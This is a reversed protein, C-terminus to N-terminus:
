DNGEESATDDDKQEDDKKKGKVTNLFRDLKKMDSYELGTVRKRNRPKNLKVKGIKEAMDPSIRLLPVRLNYVKNGQYLMVCEGKDLSKLQDPTVRHKEEEREAYGIGSSDGLNANPSARLAQTSESKSDSISITKSIAVHKGIMDAAAEATAQSGVRFILKTTTNGTVRESFDDSIQKLNSETQVAPLLFLGASRAQEFIVAWEENVYSGAEDFFAMFPIKPRDQKNAQLWSIATRFDGLIMKGFNSAAIAKGMTPLAAYCIKGSKLIDYMKVDPTYTNLVEGFQNTGFTFLRGGIGGFTEKLRKLDIEGAMPNRTDNAPLRYQDLFLRLNRTEDAKPKDKVLKRLLDELAKANNLLVSLDYFNYAYGARKCAAVLTVVGQNAAQKFYDQGANTSTSPILGILRAAVEDADGDAIPNYTNSLQPDGPNLVYFDKERGCAVAFQYISLINDGDLKGDVFLLGGNRQIQQFMLLSAAVTKGTGSMGAIFVHRFLDDDRLFIPEGTDTAYGFLLGSESFAEIPAKDSKMDISSKLSFHERWPELLRDSLEVSGALAAGFPIMVPMAGAFLPTSMAAALAVGAASLTDRPGGFQSEFAHGYLRSSEFESAQHFPKANTTTSM